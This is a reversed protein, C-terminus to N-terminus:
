DNLKELIRGLAEGYNDVYEQGHSLAHGCRDVYIKYDASVVLRLAKLENETLNIIKEM